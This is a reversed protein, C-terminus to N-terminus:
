AMRTTAMLFDVLAAVAKKVVVKAVFAVTVGVVAVVDAVFDVVFDVAVVIAADVVVATLGLCAISSAFVEVALARRQKPWHQAQARWLVWMMVIPQAIVRGTEVLSLYAPCRWQKRDKIIAIDPSVRADTKIARAPFAAFTLADWAISISSSLLVWATSEVCVDDASIANAVGKLLGDSEFV